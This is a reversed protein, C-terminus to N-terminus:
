KGFLEPNWDKNMKDILVHEEESLHLVLQRTIRYEWSQIMSRITERDALKDYLSAPSVEKNLEVCCSM